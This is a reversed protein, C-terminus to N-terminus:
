STRYYYFNMRNHQAHAYNLCEVHYLIISFLYAANKNHIMKICHHAKIIVSWENLVYASFDGKQSYPLSCHFFHRFVGAYSSSSALTMHYNTYTNGQGTHLQYKSLVFRFRIIVRKKLFKDIIRSERPDGEGIQGRGGFDNKIKVVSRKLFGRQGM